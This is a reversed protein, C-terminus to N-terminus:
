NFFLNFIINTLHLKDTMINSNTASLTCNIVANKDHLTPQINQISKKIIEHANEITPVGAAITLGNIPYGKQKLELTLGFQFNWLYANAYIVNINIGVNGTKDVKQMIEDVTNIFYERTPQGGGALEIYYGANITAAVIDANATCPTM